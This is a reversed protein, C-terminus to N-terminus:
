IDYPCCPIITEEDDSSDNSDEDDSEEDDEDSTGMAGHIAKRLNLWKWYNGDLDMAQSVKTLRLRAVPILIEDRWQQSSPPLQSSPLLQSSPALQSSLALQSSPLLQSSPPLQENILTFSGVPPDISSREDRHIDMYPSDVIDEGTDHSSPATPEQKPLDPFFKLGPLDKSRRENLRSPTHEKILYKLLVFMWCLAEEDSIETKGYFDGDRSKGNWDATKALFHHEIMMFSPSLGKKHEKGLHENLFEFFYPKILNRGLDLPAM